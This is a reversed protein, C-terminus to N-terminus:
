EVSLFETFDRQTDLDNVDEAGTRQAKDWAHDERHTLVVLQAFTMDGWVSLAFDISQVAKQDLRSPDGGPIQTLAAARRSPFQERLHWCSPGYMRSQFGERVLPANFEVLHVGHAFYSLKDVLLLQSSGGLRELIYAAVDVARHGAEHASTM